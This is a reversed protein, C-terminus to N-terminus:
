SGTTDEERTDIAALMGAYAALDILSDSHGGDWNRVYRTVKVMMLMFLHFRHHDHASRLELGDPFLAAMVDAYLQDSAKYDADRNILTNAAGRLIVAAQTAASM